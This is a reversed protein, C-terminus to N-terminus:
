VFDIKLSIKELYVKTAFGKECLWMYIHTIYIYIDIYVYICISGHM